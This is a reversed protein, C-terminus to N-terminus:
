SSFEDLQVEAARRVIRLLADPLETYSGLEKAYVGRDAWASSDVSEGATKFAVGWAAHGEKLAIHRSGVMDIIADFREDKLSIGVFLCFHTRMITSIEEIWKDGGETLLRNYSRRDLVIDFSRPLKDNFPLYGHPHHISVDVDNIWHSPDFIPEVALGCSVLYRELLDDYNYTVVNTATGRKSSLLFSSLATLTEERRLVALDPNHSEYLAAHVKELFVERDGKCVRSRFMEAMLKLDTTDPKGVSEASFMRDLLVEWSPLDSGYSIGSGLVLALRGRRLFHAVWPLFIEEVSLEAFTRRVHM